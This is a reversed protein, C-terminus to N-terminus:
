GGEHQFEFRRPSGGRAFGISATLRGEGSREYVMRQTFDHRPNGFTACTGELGTLVFETPTGGGPQAVYVLGGDREVIRLFELATRAGGRVTRSTGLMAGGLPPSWRDELSSPDRTGVWAGALWDLDGLAALAPAPLPIGPPHRILAISLLGNPPDVAVRVLLGDSTVRLGRRILGAPSNGSLNLLAADYTFACDKWAGRYRLITGKGAVETTSGHLAIRVKGDRCIMFVADEEVRLAFRASM